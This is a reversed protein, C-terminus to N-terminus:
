MCTHNQKDMVTLPKENEKHHWFLRDIMYTYLCKAQKVVLQQNNQQQKFTGCNHNELERKECTKWTLIYGYYYYYNYITHVCYM